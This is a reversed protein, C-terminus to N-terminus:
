IIWDKKRGVLFGNRDMEFKRFAVINNIGSNDFSLKVDAENDYIGYYVIKKNRINTLDFKIPNSQGYNALNGAPGYDYSQFTETLALQYLHEHVQWSTGM